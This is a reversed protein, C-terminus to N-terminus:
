KRMLLMIGGGGVPLMSRVLDDRKGIADLLDKVGQGKDTVPADIMADGHFFVDDIVMVGKASLHPELNEFYPLYNGKDGDIFIFDYMDDKPLSSVFEMADAEVLRIKKDLGNQEFNRRAIEAFHDFKEVTVLEGDDPLASAFYLGSIGIFTGLELARKAGSIRILFEMFRLKPPNSAYHTPPFRDSAELKFAEDPAELGCARITGDYLLKIFAEDGYDYTAEGDGAGPQEWEAHVPYFTQWYETVKM